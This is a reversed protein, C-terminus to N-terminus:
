SEIGALVGGSPDGAPRARSLGARAALREYVSAIESVMTEARFTPDVHLRGAAGMRARLDPDDLLDTIARALGDSDGPRVLLGTRGDIVVEPAGDIDFSVCPVGMALAQPLVRALGERLSTHVLVDMAAIMEPIEEREVLGAFVVNDELGLSRARSGLRDLLVGDGVLLLRLDPHRATMAPLADFLEDHGKLPFFRAIKGVVPADEPIGLRRRIAARDPKADLFWDLEMGSYITTYRERSGIRAALAKDVIISSVGIYHDTLPAMVRKVARWTRNVLWPQYDHFVLSHLTHVVIPTRALRAAVRGIVGAKSSHTHVIDYRGARIIRYLKWFAVADAVPSVPRGLEPLVILRTTERARPLLEGEPGDDVGSVLTVEFRPDRDLGEVTLLTNEQAGGVIM